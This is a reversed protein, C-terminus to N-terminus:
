QAESSTAENNDNSPEPLPTEDVTDITVTPTEVLTESIDITTGGCM